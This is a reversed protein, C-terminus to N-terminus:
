CPPAELIVLGRRKGIVRWGAKRFCRGPDRKHRTKRPDVETQLPVAPVGGYHIRWYSYTRETAERILTSAVPGHIRRFISCRWRLGGRPDMNYIVGWVAGCDDTLMVLTQGNAM